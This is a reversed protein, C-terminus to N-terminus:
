FKNKFIGFCFQRSQFSARQGLYILVAAKKEAGLLEILAFFVAVAAVQSM